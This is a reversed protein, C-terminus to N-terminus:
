GRLHPPIYKMGLKKFISRETTLPLPKNAYFLGHQSLKMGKKGAEVRMARNLAANGTYALVAAAWSEKTAFLIDLRFFRKKKAPCQAICKFDTKGHGLTEVILNYERLLAIFDDLTFENSRVVVDIDGSEQAGRRYSGGILMKFNSKKFTKILLANLAKEFMQIFARPIPKLKNHYKLMVLQNKNLLSSPRKKLATLSRYGQAYLKKATSTGIWSIQSLKNIVKDKASLKKIKGEKVKREILLGKKAEEVDPIVGTNILQDLKKSIGKGIGKLKIINDMPGNYNNLITIARYYANSRFGQKNVKYYKALITLGKIFEKKRNM